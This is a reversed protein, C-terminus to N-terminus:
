KRVIKKKTPAITNDKLNADLDFYQHIWTTNQYKSEDVNEKKESERRGRKINKSKRGSKKGELIKTEKM